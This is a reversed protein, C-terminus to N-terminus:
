NKMLGGISSGALLMADRQLGFRAAADDALAILFVTEDRTAPRDPHFDWSRGWGLPETGLGLM